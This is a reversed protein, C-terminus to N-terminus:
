ACGGFDTPLRTVGQVGGVVRASDFYDGRKSCRHVSGQGYVPCDCVTPFRLRHSGEHARLAQSMHSCQYHVSLLLLLVETSGLIALLVPLLQRLVPLIQDETLDAHIFETFVQM